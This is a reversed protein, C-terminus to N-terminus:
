VVFGGRGGLVEEVGRWVDVRELEERYRGDVCVVELRVIPGPDPLVQGGVARIRLCRLLPVLRPLSQLMAYDFPHSYVRGIDLHTLNPCHAL